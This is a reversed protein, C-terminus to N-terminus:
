SDRPSPSTYLLCPPTDTDSTSVRKGLEEKVDPELDPEPNYGRDHYPRSVTTDKQWRAAIAAKGNASRKQAKEFEEFARQNFYRGDVVSIKEMRILAAIAQNLVEPPERLQRHLDCTEVGRGSDWIRLCLKFYLALEVTSLDAIGGTFDSPYVAVFPLRPRKM